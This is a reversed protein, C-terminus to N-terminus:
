GVPYFTQGHRIDIWRDLLNAAIRKKRLDQPPFHVPEDGLRFTGWLAIMLKKAKLEKFAQVTEKPNMLSQAM